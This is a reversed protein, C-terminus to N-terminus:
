KSVSDTETEFSHSTEEDMKSTTYQGRHIQFTFCFDAGWYVCPENCSCIPKMCIDFAYMNYQIFSEWIGLYEALPVSIQFNRKLVNYLLFPKCQGDM